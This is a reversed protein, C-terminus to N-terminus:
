VELSDVLRTRESATPLAYSRESPAPQEAIAGRLGPAQKRRRMSQVAEAFDEFIVPMKLQMAKIERSIQLRNLKPNVLRMLNHMEQMDIAGSGDNDFFKFAEELLPISDDSSLDTNVLSDAIKNKVALRKRRQRDLWRLGIFIIALVGLAFMVLGAIIQQFGILIMCFVIYPYLVFPLLIRATRDVRLAKPVDGKGGIHHVLATEVVASLLIAFQCMKLYDIWILYTLTGLGLDTNSKLSILVMTSLLIGM